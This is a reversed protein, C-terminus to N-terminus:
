ISKLMARVEVFSERKLISRGSSNWIWLHSEVAIRIISKILFVLCKQFHDFGSVKRKFIVEFLFISFIIFAQIGFSLILVTDIVQEVDTCVWLILTSLSAKSRIEISKLMAWIEILSHSKSISSSSSNCVWFLEKVAVWPKSKSLKITMIHSRNSSINGARLSAWILQVLSIEKSISFSSSNWVWFCM